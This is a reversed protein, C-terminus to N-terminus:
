EVCFMQLLYPKPKRNLQIDISTTIAHNNDETNSGICTFESGSYNRTLTTVKMTNRSKGPAIEEFQDDIMEGNAWWTVRSTPSAGLVDCTLILTSMENFPQLPVLPMEHIPRSNDEKLIKRAVVEGRENLIVSSQPPVVFYFFSIFFWLSSQANSKGARYHRGHVGFTPTSINAKLKAWLFSM